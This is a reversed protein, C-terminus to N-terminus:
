RARRLYSQFLCSLQEKLRPQDARPASSKRGFAKERIYICFSVCPVSLALWFFSYKLCIQGMVNGPMGSYDWIDWGLMRNVLLGALFELTTIVATCMIWKQCLSDRSFVAIIYMSLFCAGGLLPMSWHTFEGRWITEIIGYSAAGFMYVTMYEIVPMNIVGLFSLILM